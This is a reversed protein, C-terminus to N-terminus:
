GFWARQRRSRVGFSTATPSTGTSWRSRIRPNSVSAAAVGPMSPPPSSARRTSTPCVCGISRATWRWSQPPAVTGAVAYDRIAAYGDRRLVGSTRERQDMQSNAPATDQQGPAAPLRPAPTPGGTTGTSGFARTAIERCDAHRPSRRGVTAAPAAARMWGVSPMLITVPRKASSERSAASCSTTPTASRSSERQELEATVTGLDVGAATADALTRQAADPDPDPTRAVEGHDAFAHLTQEPM